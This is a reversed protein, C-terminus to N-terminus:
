PKLEISLLEALMSAMAFNEKHLITILDELTKIDECATITLIRQFNEQNLLNTPSIFWESEETITAGTVTVSYFSYSKTYDIGQITGNSPSALTYGTGSPHSTFGMAPTLTNIATQDITIINEKSFIGMRCQKGGNFTGNKFSVKEEGSTPCFIAYHPRILLSVGSQWPMNQVFPRIHIKSSATKHETLLQKIPMPLNSVCWSPLEMAIPTEPFGVTHPLCNLDPHYPHFICVQKSISANVAATAFYHLNDEINLSMHIHEENSEPYNEWGIVIKKDKKLVQRIFDATTSM